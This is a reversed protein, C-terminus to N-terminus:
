FEVMRIEDHTTAINQPGVQMESPVAAESIM